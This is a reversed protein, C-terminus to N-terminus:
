GFYKEHTAQARELLEEAEELAIQANIIGGVCHTNVVAREAEVLRAKATSVNGELDLLNKQSNLQTRKFADQVKASDKDKENQSWLAVLANKKDAM